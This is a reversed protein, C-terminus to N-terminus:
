TKVWAAAHYETPGPSGICEKVRFCEEIIKVVCEFVVLAVTDRELRRTRYKQNPPVLAFYALVVTKAVVNILPPRGRLSNQHSVM